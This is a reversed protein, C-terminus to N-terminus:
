IGGSRAMGIAQVLNQHISQSAPVSQRVLDLQLQNGVAQGDGALRISQGISRADIWQEAVGQGAVQLLIRAGGPDLAARASADGVTTEAVTGTAGGAFGEPTAGDRIRLTMGNRASNGDGAVQVSQVLGGVNALGRGDVDRQGTAAAVASTQETITVSPQFSVDPRGNRLDFGLKIAGQVTQGASTVWNSVMTVGFWAVRNDGVIYRGRMAGLEADPIETLGPRAPATTDGAWAPAICAGLAIAAILISHTRM